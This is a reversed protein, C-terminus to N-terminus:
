ACARQFRGHPLQQRLEFFGGSICDDYRIAGSASQIILYLLALWNVYSDYCLSLNRRENFHYSRRDYQHQYRLPRLRRIRAYLDGFGSILEGSANLLDSSAALAIAKLLGVVPPGTPM